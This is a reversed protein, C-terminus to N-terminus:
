STPNNSKSKFARSVIYIVILLLGALAAAVSIYMFTNTVLKLTRTYATFIQPQKIAFSSFYDTALLYACPAIGMIGSIVASIGTWYLTDRKAKLNALLLLILLVIVSVLSCVLILDLRTYIRSLRALVGHSDLAAFKYVDCYETIISYAGKKTAKLKKNFNDDKKYGISDAYDNFFNEISADLETNSVEIPLATEGGRLREFGSDITQGIVGRLFETDIASMYVDAPIGTASSRDMFYRELESSVSVDLQESTALQKFVKESGCLKAASAGSAILLCFVLLVSLIISAIYSAAKKM